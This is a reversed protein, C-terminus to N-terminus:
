DNNEKRSIQKCENDIREFTRTLKYAEQQAEETVTIDFIEKMQWLMIQVDCLEEVVKDRNASLDHCELVAALEKSLESLEEITKAIQHDIGYYRIIEKLASKDYVM